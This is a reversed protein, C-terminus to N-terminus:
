SVKYMEEITQQSRINKTRFNENFIEGGENYNIMEAAYMFNLVNLFKQYSPKNKFTLNKNFKSWLKELTYHKSGIIKLIFASLGIYSQEISIYKDPLIM